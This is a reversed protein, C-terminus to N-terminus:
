TSRTGALGGTLAGLYGIAANAKNAATFLANRDRNLVKLWSSVYCAHDLRPENAVHLDACLFAAGFEAILEEMAYADDGFRGRLLRSLRHAAGTWHILEHLNVSYFCETASSTDTAVFQEPHPLGIYDGLASYFAGDGGFRIDARTAAIFAEAHERMEVENPKTVTPPTWGEVQESNFVWSTRAVLRAKSVERSESGEGDQVPEEVAKYFVITSGRAGKRVQAGLAHWQRYTGWFGSNFHRLSADAWLAIVNAGQYAKGTSANVPRSTSAGRRHWPMRYDGVGAEIAAVIKETITQHTDRKSLVIDDM